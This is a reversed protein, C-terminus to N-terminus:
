SKRDPQRIFYKPKEIPEKETQKAKSRRTCGDIVNTHSNSTGGDIQYAPRPSPIPSTNSLIPLRTNRFPPHYIRYASFSISSSVGGLVLFTNSYSCAYYDETLVLLSSMINFSWQESAISSPVTESCRVADRIQLGRLSRRRRGDSRCKYITRM